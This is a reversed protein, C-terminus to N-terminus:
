LYISEDPIVAITPVKSEENVSSKEVTVDTLQSLAMAKEFGYQFRQWYCLRIM